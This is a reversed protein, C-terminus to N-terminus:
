AFLGNDLGKILNIPERAPGSLNKGSRFGFITVFGAMATGRAAFAERRSPLVQGMIM